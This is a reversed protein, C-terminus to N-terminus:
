TFLSRNLCSLRDGLLPPDGRQQTSDLPPDDEEPVRDERVMAKPRTAAALM